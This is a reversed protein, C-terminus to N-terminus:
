RTIAVCCPPGSASVAATVIVAGGGGGGTTTVRISTVGADTVSAVPAVRCNAAVSNKLSPEERAAV